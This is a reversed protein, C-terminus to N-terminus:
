DLDDAQLANYLRAMIEPVGSQVRDLGFIVPSLVIIPLCIGRFPRRM